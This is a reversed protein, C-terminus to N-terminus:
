DKVNFERNWYIAQELTDMETLPPDHNKWDFTSILEGRPDRVEIEYINPSDPNVDLYYVDKLEAGEFIEPPLKFFDRSVCVSYLKSNKFSTTKTCGGLSSDKITTGIFKTGDLDGGISAHVFTLGSFDANRLNGDGFDVNSYHKHKHQSSVLFRAKTFDVNETKLSYFIAGSLNVGEIKAGSIDAEMFDTDRFDGYSLDSDRFNSRLFRVNRAKIFPMYIGPAWMLTILSNDFILPDKELDQKKLYSILERYRPHESLKHPPTDCTNDEKWEYSILEITSFDRRGKLVEQIFQNPRVKVRANNNKESHFKDIDFM